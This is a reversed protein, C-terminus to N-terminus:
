VMLRRRAAAAAGILGTGLLALSSPEPVPAPDTSWSEFPVLSGTDLFDVGGYQGILSVIASSGNTGGPSTCHDVVGCLPGGGYNQFTDAYVQLTMYNGVGDSSEVWSWPAANGTVPNSFVDGNYPIFSATALGTTTDIEVWGAAHLSPDHQFTVNQLTFITYDDARMSLPLVFLSVALLLTRVRM